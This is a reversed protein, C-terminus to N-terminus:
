KRGSEFGNERVYLTSNRSTEISHYNWELNELLCHITAHNKMYDILFLLFFPKKQCFKSEELM